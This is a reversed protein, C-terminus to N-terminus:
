DHQEKTKKNKYDELLLKVEDQLDLAEYCIYNSNNPHMCVLYLDKIKKGYKTELIHKYTNLQLSYHVYNCHPLKELPYLGKEGYSNDLAIEKSRKWDYISLTGDENEYIMDISGALDYEEYYVEWETRYPKFKKGIDNQFNKFMKYEETTNTEDDTGNYFLEITKHMYTGKECAEDGTKKWMEKIEEKTKPYYKNKKWNRSNQMKDIIKDADFKPFYHHILTTVSTKAAKGHVYYIHPEEDFVIFEDRPHSNLKKLYDVM